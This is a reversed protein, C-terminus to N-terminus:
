VNFSKKVERIDQTIGRALVLKDDKDDADRQAAKLRARDESQKEAALELQDILKKNEESKEDLADKLEQIKILLARELLKNKAREEEFQQCQLEFLKDLEEKKEELLQGVRLEYNEEFERLQYRKQCLEEALSSEVDKSQTRESALQQCLQESNGIKITLEKVKNNADVLKEGLEKLQLSTKKFEVEEAAKIKQLQAEKEAILDESNKMQQQYTDIKQKLELVTAELRAAKLHLEEQEAKQRQSLEKTRQLANKVKEAAPRL